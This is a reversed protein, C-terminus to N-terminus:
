DNILSARLPALSDFLPVGCTELRRRPMHGCTLLICAVGMERAVEHDHSTDGIFLVASKDCDLQRIWRKGNEVKSHAYYDNLGVLRVFYPRLHFLDVAEELRHQHYASLVSQSLGSLQLDQLLEAAGAQLRCQSLRAVYEDIYEHSVAEYSEVNFDFGLQRYFDVVPFDFIDYYRELTLEPLNRRQLLVNVAAIAQQVDNLLTGNWDWIIHQYQRTTGM